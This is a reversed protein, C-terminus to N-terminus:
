WGDFGGAPCRKGLLIFVFVAGWIVTGAADVATIQKAWKRARKWEEEMALGAFVSRRKARRRKRRATDGYAGPMSSSGREWDWEREEEESEEEERRGGFVTPDVILNVQVDGGPMMMGGKGKKGKGGKKNKKGGPLGQVPLVMMGNALPNSADAPDRKRRKRCCCPYFLFLFLLGLLTLVSVVYLVYAPARGSPPPTEKPKIVIAAYISPIAAALACLIQVVRMAVRKKQGQTVLYGKGDVTGVLPKGNEDLFDDQPDNSGKSQANSGFERELM